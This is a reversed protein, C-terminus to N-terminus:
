EYLKLMRDSYKGDERYVYFPPEVRLEEGGGKRVELHALRGPGGPRSYILTLRKPSFGQALASEILHGLRTAPYVLTARGGQPLLHRAAAFVDPLTAALEHRAIAKQRDPNVRGTGPRRYPPNSLLLDFSGSPFSSAALRLDLQLIEVRETLGNSEVNGQALRALEPQIEIGVIRRGTARRHALVLPVVGCGTGLEIVRDEPKVDSLGALM